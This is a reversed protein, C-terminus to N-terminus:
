YADETIKIMRAFFKGAQSNLGDNVVAMSGAMCGEITHYSQNLRRGEYYATYEIKDTLKNTKLDRAHYTVFQYDKVDYVQLVYGLWRLDERIEDHSKNM